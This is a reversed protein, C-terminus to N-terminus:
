QCLAEMTPIAKMISFGRESNSSMKIDSINLETPQMNGHVHAVATTGAECLDNRSIDLKVLATNRSLESALITADDADM